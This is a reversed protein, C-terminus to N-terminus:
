CVFHYKGIYEHSSDYCNKVICCLLKSFLKKVRKLDDRWENVGYNKTIEIQFLEFDAMFTALKAASQRGSGGIGAFFYSFITTVTTANYYRPCSLSPLSKIIKKVKYLSGLTTQCGWPLLQLVKRYYIFSMIPLVKKAYACEISNSLIVSVNCMIWLIFVVISM